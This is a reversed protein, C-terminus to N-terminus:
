PSGSYPVWQSVRSGIILEEIDSLSPWQFTGFNDVLADEQSKAIEM